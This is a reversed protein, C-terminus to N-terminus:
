SHGCRPVAFVVSFRRCLANERALCSGSELVAFCLLIEFPQKGKRLGAMAAFAELCGGVGSLCASCSAFAASALPPLLSALDPAHSGKGLGSIPGQLRAWCM